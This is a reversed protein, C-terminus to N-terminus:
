VEYYRVGILLNFLSTTIGQRLVKDHYRQLVKDYYRTTIGKYYRTTIGKYYRSPYKQFAKSIGQYLAQIFHKSLTSPYLAKIFHKHLTSQYLAQTFHKSLTSTYLAKIFHKHLTSQYLITTYRFDGRRLRSFIKNLFGESFYKLTGLIAEGSARFIKACLGRKANGSPM